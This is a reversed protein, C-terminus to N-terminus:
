IAGGTILPIITFVQQFLQWLQDGRQRDLSLAIAIRSIIGIAIGKWDTKSLRTVSEILYDLKKNISQQQLESTNFREAILGKLGEMALRIRAADDASFRGTDEININEIKLYEVGKKYEQWLDVANQDDLYPQVHRKLWIGIYILIDDITLTSQPSPNNLVYMPGYETYNIAYANFNSPFPEIKFVFKSNKFELNTVNPEHSYPSDFLEFAILGYKSQNLYEVIKNRHTQRM